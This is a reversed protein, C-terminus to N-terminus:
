KVQRKVIIVIESGGILTGAISMGEFQFGAASAEQLEKEMTSTRNTALLRYEFQPAPNDKKREMITIVEKGGFTSKFVTQGKLIFGAAAAEQLENQMTSTKSTALLKYEYQTTVNDLLRSMVVVTESGAFGTEGGMVGEFRFGASAAENLEKDMTSTKKTALLKYEAEQCFGSVPMVLMVLVLAMVGSASGFLFKKVM